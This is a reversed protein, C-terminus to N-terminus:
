QNTLQIGWATRLFRTITHTHAHTRIYQILVSLSLIVCIVGCSEFPTVGVPNFYAVNSLYRATYSSFPVLYVCIKKNFEFDYTKPSEQSGFCGMKSLLCIIEPDVSGIKAIKAGFSLCKNIVLRSRKKIGWPINNHCGTLTSFDANKRVLRIQRAAMRFPMALRCNRNWFKLFILYFSNRSM